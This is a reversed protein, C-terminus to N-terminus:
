TCAKYMFLGSFFIYNLIGERLIINKFFSNLEMGVGKCKKEYLYM